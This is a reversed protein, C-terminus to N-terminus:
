RGHITDFSPALFEERTIEGAMFRQAHEQAPGSLSFGELGVSATAYSVAKERQRLEDATIAPKQKNAEAANAVYEMYERLILAGPRGIVQAAKNFRNRLGTDLRITMSTDKSM